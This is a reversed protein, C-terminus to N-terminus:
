KDDPSNIFKWYYGYKERHPEKKRLDHLKRIAASKGNVVIVTEYEEPNEKNFKVIKARATKPDPEGM